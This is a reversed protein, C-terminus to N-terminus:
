GKCGGVAGAPACNDPHNREVASSTVKVAGDGNYIGGGGDSALNGLIRSHAIDIAGPLDLIGAGNYIGGGDSSVHNDDFTTDTVTAVYGNYIGGGDSGASNHGFIAKAVTAYGQNEIGGGMVAINRTFTDGTATLNNYNYIGGGSEAKNRALTVRTVALEASDPNFNDIAGGDGQAINGAFVGGTVTLDIANFIAGGEGASNDAFTTQSVAMTVKSLYGPGGFNDIAGGDQSATNDAFTSGSVTVTGLGNEIAGGGETATNGTFTAGTVTMTGNDPKYTSFNDIAGGDETATNGTFHGGTVSLTGGESDIAGGYESYGNRFNLNSVTLEGSNATLIAFGPTGSVYSREITADNGRITLNNSIDPLAATLVYRCFAALSLTEGSVAGSIDTALSTVSCPVYITVPPPGALASPSYGLGAAAVAGVALTRVATRVSKVPM